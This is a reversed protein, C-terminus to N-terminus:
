LRRCDDGWGWREGERPRGLVPCFGVQFLEMPGAEMDPRTPLCAKWSLVFGYRRRHAGMGAVHFGQISEGLLWVSLLSAFAPILNIFLGARNPGVLDM